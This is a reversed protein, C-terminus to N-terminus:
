ISFTGSPAQNAEKPSNKSLKATEVFGEYDEQNLYTLSNKMYKLKNEKSAFSAEKKRLVELELAAILEKATHKGSNIIKYFKLRCEPKKVRLTRTGKFLREKYTFEDNRPYAEWWQEFEDMNAQSFSELAESIKDEGNRLKNLLIGGAETVTYDEKLYGKRVLGQIWAKTKEEIPIAEKFELKELIYIHNMDMGLSLVQAMNVQFMAKKVEPKYDQGLNQM